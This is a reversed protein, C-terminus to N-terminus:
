YLSVFTDGYHSLLRAATLKSHSHPAAVLYLFPVDSYDFKIEEM